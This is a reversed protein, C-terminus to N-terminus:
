NCTHFVNSICEDLTCKCDTYLTAIPMSDECYFLECRYVQEPGANDRCPYEIVLTHSPLKMTIAPLHLYKDFLKKLRSQEKSDQLKDNIVDNANFM